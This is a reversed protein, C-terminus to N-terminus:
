VLWGYNFANVFLYCLDEEDTRFAQIESLILGNNRVAIIFYTAKIQKVASSRYRKPMTITFASFIKVM